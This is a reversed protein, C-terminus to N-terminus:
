KTGYLFRVGYTRRSSGTCLYLGHIFFSNSQVMYFNYVTRVDAVVQVCTYNTFLSVIVKYWLSITCWVYTSSSGTCLYLGHIFFSNSQVMYFDYVTRVDAVVQVCTYNTFLSVIVKYWLSIACWVYTSSSGTCLYLEHIFFSNSQVMYFDYVTHVDAVVPVCTYNTFISVIVKYWISIACWVYTSSSGTCLYLEHIFFSNSQVM